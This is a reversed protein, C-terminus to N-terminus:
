ARCGARTRNYACVCVRLPPRARAPRHHRQGQQHPAPGPSRFRRSIPVVSGRTEEMDVAASTSGPAPCWAWVDKAEARVSLYGPGFSVVLEDNKRVEEFNIKDLDEVHVFKVDRATDTDTGPHLGLSTRLAARWATWPIGAGISAALLPAPPSTASLTYKAFEPVRALSAALILRATSVATPPFGSTSKSLPATLFDVLHPIPSASMTSRGAILSSDIPTFTTCPFSSSIERRSIKLVSIYLLLKDRLRSYSNKKTANGSGIKDFLRRLLKDFVAFSSGSAEDMAKEAM